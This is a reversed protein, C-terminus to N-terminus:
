PYFDILKCQEITNSITPDKYFGKFYKVTTDKISDHKTVIDGHGNNIEWIHKRVGNFSAFKHFYKTNNDGNSMWLAGSRLRWQEEEGRLIGNREMELHQLSLATTHDSPDGGLIKITDKIDSELLLLKEKNIILNEKHWIKTQKKLEQLKWIIRNQKGGETLFVPDNWVKIVIDVFEKDNLWQANFKFPYIKYTPPLDL